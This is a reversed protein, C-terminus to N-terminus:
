NRYQMAKKISNATEEDKLYKLLEFGFLHATGAGKSTIINGDTEVDNGTYNCEPMEEDYGPYATAKKGKLLGYQYFVSPAACIAAVIGGGQYCEKVTKEVVSSKGLNTTGPLGGPLIVCQADDKIENATIDCKVTINHAGAVFLDDSFCLSM